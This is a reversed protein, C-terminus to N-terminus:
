IYSSYFSSMCSFLYFPPMCSFFVLKILFLYHHFLSWYRHCTHCSITISYSRLYRRWCSVMFFNKELCFFGRKIILFVSESNAVPIRCKYIDKSTFDQKTVCQPCLVIQEVFFPVCSYVSWANQCCVKDNNSQVNTITHSRLNSCLSDLHSRLVALFGKAAEVQISLFKSHHWFHFDVTYLFHKYKLVSFSYCVQADTCKYVPRIQIGLNLIHKCKWFINAIKLINM